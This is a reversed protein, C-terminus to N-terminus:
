GQQQCTEGEKGNFYLGQTYLIIAEDNRTKGIMTVAVGGVPKFGAAIINNVIAQLGGPSEAEAVRYGRKRSAKGISM